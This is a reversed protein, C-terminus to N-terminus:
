EVQAWPLAIASLVREGLQNTAQPGDQLGSVFAELLVSTLRPDEAFSFVGSRDNLAVDVTRHVDHRIRRGREESAQEQKRAGGAGRVERPRWTDQATEETSHQQRRGAM